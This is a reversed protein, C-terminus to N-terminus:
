KTDTHPYISAMTHAHAHTYTLPHGTSTKGETLRPVSSLNDPKATLKKLWQAIQSAPATLYKLM